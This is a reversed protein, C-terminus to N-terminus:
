TEHVESDIAPQRVTVKTGVGLESEFILGYEEGYYLRIREHVNRVGVGSVDGSRASRARGGTLQKLRSVATEDSLLVGALEAPMGVGNDRVECLLTNQDRFVRIAIHGGQDRTRLGHYIANEVLPQLIIRLTKLPLTAPEAEIHFDVKEPSYRMRQITLYNEVHQLESSVTVLENGQSISLRLLRALASTMTIVREHERGEAMWIISDLTNYVFHPTIQNQLAQLESKRKETQRAANQNMLSKIEGIMINFDRSLGVVETGGRVDVQIDFNGQEVAKMSERLRRIPLSIRVTLLQSLLVVLVFCLFGFLVYLILVRSADALLEEVYNVGTVKWGTSESRAVTYIREDAGQGATFSGADTAMVEAIQEDRLNSFILQQQPHYVLAGTESVVFVYGRAGLQVSSLLDEIITFNLDVLLVGDPLARSLSIVWRYRDAVINQVQAPTIVPEGEAALSSRYWRQEDIAIAPNVRLEPDHFIPPAEQGRVMLLSIDDRTQSVSQLLSFVAERVEEGVEPDSVYRRVNSDRHIVEAISKMNAIYSDMSARLQSVLQSTYEQATEVLVQRTVSYSAIGMFLITILVMMSLALTISAQIGGIRSRLPSNDRRVDASEIM